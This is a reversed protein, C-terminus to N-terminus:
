QLPSPNQESKEKEKRISSHLGQSKFYFSPNIDMGISADFLTSLIEAM